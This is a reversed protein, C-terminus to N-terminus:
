DGYGWATAVFTDRRASVGVGLHGTLRVAGAPGMSADATAPGHARMQVEDKSVDSATDARADAGLPPPAPPELAPHRDGHDLAWVVEDHLRRLTVEGARQVWALGHRESLVPLIASAALHSIRGLRWAERLAFCSRWSAREIAILSWAERSSDHKFWGRM